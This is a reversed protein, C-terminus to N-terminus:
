LSARRFSKCLAKVVRESEFSLATSLKAEFASIGDAWATEQMSHTHMNQIAQERHTINRHQLKVMEDRYM